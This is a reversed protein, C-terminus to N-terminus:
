KNWSKHQVTDYERWTNRMLRSRIEAMETSSLSPDSMKALDLGLEYALSVEAVQDVTYAPNLYKTIQQGNRLDSIYYRMVEPRFAPNALPRVNVKNQLGKRLARMQEASLAPNAYIKIDVGNQKGERLEAIQEPTFLEDLRNLSKKNNATNVRTVETHNNKSRIMIEELFPCNPYSKIHARKDAEQPVFIANQIPIGGVTTIRKAYALLEKIDINLVKGDYNAVKYGIIREGDSIQCLITYPKNTSETFRSLDGSKGCIKGNEMKINMWIAGHRFTEKLSEDDFAKLEFKWDYQKPGKETICAIIARYRTVTVKSNQTPMKDIGVIFGVNKTM